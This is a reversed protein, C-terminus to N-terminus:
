ASLVRFPTSLDSVVGAMLMQERDGDSLATLDTIAEQQVGDFKFKSLDIKSM